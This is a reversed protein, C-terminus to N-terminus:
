TAVTEVPELTGTLLEEAFHCASEHGPGIPKLEPRETRCVDRAFPCRTHFACGEIKEMPSPVDGKLAVSERPMGRARLGKDVDPVAALLAQTYPHAPYDYLRSSSGSEVIRGLYMVLVRDCIYRVVALDHAVFLYTLGRQQQLDKLM